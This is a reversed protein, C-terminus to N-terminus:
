RVVDYGADEIAEALNDEEAQETDYVVTVTKGELDVAVDSVGQIESLANKVAKECHSCSM